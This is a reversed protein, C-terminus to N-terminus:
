VCYMNDIDVICIETNRYITVQYMRVAKSMTILDSTLMLRIYITMESVMNVKIITQYCNLHTKLLM